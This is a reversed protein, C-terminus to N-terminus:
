NCNELWINRTFSRQIRIRRVLIWPYLVSWM